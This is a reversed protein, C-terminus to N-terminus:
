RVKGAFDDLKRYISVRDLCAEIGQRVQRRTMAQAFLELSNLISSLKPGLFQKAESLHIDAVTTHCFQRLAPIGSEQVLEKNGKACYKEYWSNSVCFVDLVGNNM